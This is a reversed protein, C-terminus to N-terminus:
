IRDASTRSGFSICNQISMAFLQGYPIFESLKHHVASFTNYNIGYVNRSFMPM